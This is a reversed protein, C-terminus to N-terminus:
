PTFKNTCRFFNDDREIYGLSLLKDISRSKRMRNANKSIDQELVLNDFEEKTISENISDFVKIDQDNLNDSKEDIPEVITTGYNGFPAEKQVIKFEGKLGGETARSRELEWTGTDKSNQPKTIRIHHDVAGMVSSHGRAGKTPDKGIHHILLVLSNTRQQITKINQLFHSLENERLNVSAVTDFVIVLPLNEYKYSHFKHNLFEKIKKDFRYPIDTEVEFPEDNLTLDKCIKYDYHGKGVGEIRESLWEKSNWHKFPHDDLNIQYERIFEEVIDEDMIHTIVAELQQKDERSLDIQDTTTRILHGPVKFVEKIYNKIREMASQEGDGCWYFLKCKSTKRGFFNQGSMCSFIAQLVFTTKGSGYNGYYLCTGKEPLFTDILFSQPNHKENLLDNGNKITFKYSM